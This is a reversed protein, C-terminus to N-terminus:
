YRGAARALSTQRIDTGYQKIWAGKFSLIIDNYNPQPFLLAQTEAIFLIPFRAPFALVPLGPREPYPSSGRPIVLPVIGVLSRMLPQRRNMRNRPSHARYGASKNSQVCLYWRRASLSHQRRSTDTTFTLEGDLMYYITETQSDQSSVSYEARGGPLFVSRVLTLHGGQGSAQLVFAKMDFHGPPTFGSAASLRTIRM